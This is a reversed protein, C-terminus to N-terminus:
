IMYKCTSVFSILAMQEVQSAVVMSQLKHSLGRYFCSALTLGDVKCLRHQPIRFQHIYEDVSKEGQLLDMLENLIHFQTRQLSFQAVLGEILSEYTPVLMPKLWARHWVSDWGGLAAETAALKASDQVIGRAVLNHQVPGPFNRCTISGFYCRM